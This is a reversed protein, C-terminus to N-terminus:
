VLWINKDDILLKEEKTAIKVFLEGFGNKEYIERSGEKSLGRVTIAGSYNNLLGTSILRSIKYREYIIVTAEKNRTDKYLEYLTQLDSVFIQNLVTAFECFRDWDIEKNIYFAFFKALLRSKETEINQNLYLLIRELEEKQKKKNKLFKQKYKHLQEKNIEQKNLSEIFKITQKLLNKNYIMESTKIISLAINAIPINEVIGNELITDISNEIEDLAISEIDDLISKKM